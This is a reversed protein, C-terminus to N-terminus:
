FGGLGDGLGDWVVMNDYGALREAPIKQWVEASELLSKSQASLASVRADYAPPTSLTYLGTHKDVLAVRMSAKALLIASLSGVMGAGVVIVDYAKAM